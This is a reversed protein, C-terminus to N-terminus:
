ISWVNSTDSGIMRSEGKSPSIAERGTLWEDALEVCLADDVSVIRARLIINVVLHHFGFRRRIGETYGFGEVALMGLGVFGGCRIAGGEERVADFSTQRETRRELAVDTRELVRRLGLARQGIRRSPAKSSRFAELLWTQHKDRGLVAARLHAVLTWAGLVHHILM